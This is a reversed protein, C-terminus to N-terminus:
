RPVLDVSAWVDVGDRGWRESASLRLAVCQCHDHIELSGRWGLLRQATLDGDVGGRATVLPTIPFTLRAGSTWGTTALSGYSTALPADTLARAVVPDVGDRGAVLLAVSLSRTPGVRLRASMAHGFGGAPGAVDSGEAGLGVWTTSAAGRWRVALTGPQADGYVGGADLGVEVGRRAGWEGVSTRFGADALGVTGHMGGPTPIEGLLGDTQAAIGAVELEPEIRHRWPDNPDSSAFTRALPLALRARVSAATDYGQSEGTGALDAAGRLSLSAGVPGVHSALMTGVDARGYSLAPIGAGSLTGGELTAEYTGAGSAWGAGGSDRARVGPGWADVQGLESGRVNEAMVAAALVWGDGRRSAEASARDFVRAAADLDSTSTVAREGRLLDADWSLVSAHDSGPSGGNSTDSSGRADVTLGGTHLDDWTLLTVSKPTRLTGEVAAGGDFYAGARLDLAGDVDSPGWPIHVGEGLFFGDSGRYAVEPPLLGVRAGSRLWFWPLWFVPVGSIELRPQTLFLDGPPAVTAAPFALAVPEGLCPCFAIRGDGQVYLGRATRTVRLERSTLHFPDAEVDVHGQLILAQSRTELTVDDATIRADLPTPEVAGAPRARLLPLLLTLAVLRCARVRVGARTSCAGM